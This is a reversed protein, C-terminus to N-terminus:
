VHARGIEAAKEIEIAMKKNCKATDFVKGDEKNYKVGRIVVSLAKLKYRAM